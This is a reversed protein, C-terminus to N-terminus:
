PPQASAAVDRMYIYAQKAVLVSLRLRNVTSNLNSYELNTQIFFYILRNIYEYIASINSVFLVTACTFHQTKM